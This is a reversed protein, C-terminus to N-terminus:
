KHLSLVMASARSQVVIYAATHPSLPNSGPFKSRLFCDRWQELSNGRCHLSSDLNIYKLLGTRWGWRLRHQASVSRRASLMPWGHFTELWQTSEIEYNEVLSRVNVQQIVTRSVLWPWPRCCRICKFASLIVIVSFLSLLAMIGYRTKMRVFCFNMTNKQTVKEWSLHWFNYNFKHRM